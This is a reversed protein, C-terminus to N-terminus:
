VAPIAFREEPLDVYAAVGVTSIVTTIGQDSDVVDLGGKEVTVSVAGYPVQAAVVSIDVLQPKQVGVTIKVQMANRDLHLSAFLSLTSHHLADQVARVTAKTYDAGYIDNGTGMELIIRKM